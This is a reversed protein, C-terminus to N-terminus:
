AVGGLRRRRDGLWADLARRAQDVDFMYTCQPDDPDAPKRGRRGLPDPINGAKREVYYCAKCLGQARHQRTGPAEAILVQAPRLPHNCKVCARM